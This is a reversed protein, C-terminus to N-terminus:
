GAGIKLTQLCSELKSLSLAKIFCDAANDHTSIKVLKFQGGSLVDRLFHYRIDIHKTREHYTQNKSLYVASQSDCNVEVISSDEKLETTIERLWIAEKIAETAAIYEAETTSLAVVSQLSSRWSVTNGLYTFVMGSLSRRKDVDTAYDADVYGVLLKDCDLNKTYTLCYSLSGKIYRMVWKVAKWHQMGPNAMFRSIVSMCHALDPRTCVMLYMLSGVASAYPISAMENKEKENQPSQSVSLRFHKALPVTVPKCLSM